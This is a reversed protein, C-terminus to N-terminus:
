CTYSDENQKRKKINTLFILLVLYVPLELFPLQNYYFDFWGIALASVMFVYLIILLYNKTISAVIWLLYLILSLFFVYIGSIVYGGNILITGFFTKVNVDVLCKKDIFVHYSSVVGTVKSGTLFHYLNIFPMVLAKPCVGVPMQEKMHEGFGLVGAFVYGMFHKFLLQIKDLFDVNKKNYMAFLYTLGFLLMVIIVFVIVTPVKIKVKRKSFVRFLIGGIIPIYLWTKVQYLVEMLLLVSITLLIFYDKKKVVGIFFILLLITLGMLHGAIGSGAFAYTFDDTALARISNYKFYAIVFSYGLYLIVIWSFILFGNKSKSSIDIDSKSFNLIIKDIIKRPIIVSWFFSGLWFILIGIIMLLFLSSSLPRFGMLSGFFFTITIVILIPYSLIIVPSFYNAFVKRDFYTFFVIEAFLIIYLILNLM